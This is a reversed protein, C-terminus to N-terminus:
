HATLKMPYMIPGNLVFPMGLSFERGEFGRM